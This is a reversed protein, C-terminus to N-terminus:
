MAGAATAITLVAVVVLVTVTGAAILAIAILTGAERSPALRAWRSPRPPQHDPCDTTGFWRTGHTTCHHRGAFFGNHETTVHCRPPRHARLTIM